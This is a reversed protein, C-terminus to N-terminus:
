GGNAVPIFQGKNGDFIGMVIERGDPTMEILEAGHAIELEKLPLYEPIIPSDSKTFGNGTFPPAYQTWSKTAKDFQGAVREMEEVTTGGYPVKIHEPNKAKFRILFMSDERGLTRGGYGLQLGDFLKTPTDLMNVDQARTLFGRIGAYEGSLYKAVDEAKIVRQLLTDSTIPPVMDRVEMLLLIEDDTLEDTTKNVLRKFEDLSMGSPLYKVVEEDFSTLSQLFAMSYKPTRALVRVADVSEDARRAGMAIDSLEDVAHAAGKAGGQVLERVVKGGVLPVFFAGVTVWREWAALKEGTVYDVGTLAEQADKVEGIGPAVSLGISLTHDAVKKDQEAQGSAVNRAWVNLEDVVAARVSPPSKKEHHDLLGTLTEVGHVAIAEDTFGAAKLREVPSLPLGGAPLFEAKQAALWADDEPTRAKIGFEAEQEAIWRSDEGSLGGSSEAWVPKAMPMERVLEEAPPVLEEGAHGVPSWRNKFAAVVLGVLLALSPLFPTAGGPKPASQQANPAVQVPEQGPGVQPAGGPADSSRLPAGTLAQDTGSPRNVDAVRNDPVAQWLRFPGETKSETTQEGTCTDTVTREYHVQQMVDTGEYWRDEGTRQWSGYSYGPTKCPEPTAPATVATGPTAMARAAEWLLMEWSM